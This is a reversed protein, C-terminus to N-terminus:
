RAPVKQNPGLRLAVMGRTLNPLQTQRLTSRRCPPNQPPPGWEENTTSAQQGPFLRELPYVRGPIQGQTCTQALTSRFLIQRFTTRLKVDCCNMQNIIENIFSWWFNFKPKIQRSEYIQIFIIYKPVFTYSKHMLFFVNWHSIAFHDMKAIHTKEFINDKTMFYPFTAWLFNQDSNGRPDICELIQANFQSFHDCFTTNQGGLNNYNARLVCFFFDITPWCFTVNQSLFAFNSWDFWAANQFWSPRKCRHLSLFNYAALCSTLLRGVRTHAHTHTRAHATPASVPQSNLNPFFFLRWCVDERCFIFKLFGWKQIMHDWQPPTIHM